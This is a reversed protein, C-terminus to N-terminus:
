RFSHPRTRTSQGTGSANRCVRIGSQSRVRGPNREALLESMFAIRSGCLVLNFPTRERTVDDLVKQVISPLAPNAECLYPFEDLMLTLGPTAGVLAPKLPLKRDIKVLIRNYYDL